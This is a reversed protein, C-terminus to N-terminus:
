VRGSGNCTPCTEGAAGITKAEVLLKRSTDKVKQVEEREFNNTARDLGERKYQRIASVAEELKRIVESRTM